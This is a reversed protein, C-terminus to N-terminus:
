PPPLSRKKSNNKSFVLLRGTSEAFLGNRGLNPTDKFFKEPRGM